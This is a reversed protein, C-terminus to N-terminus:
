NTSPFLCAYAYSIQVLPPALPLPELLISSPDVLALSLGTLATAHVLPVSTNILVTEQYNIPYM